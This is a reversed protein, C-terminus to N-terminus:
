DMERLIQGADVGGIEVRRVLLLDPQEHAVQLLLTARVGIPSPKAALPALGPVVRVAALPRAPRGGVALAVERRQTEEVAVELGVVFEGSM